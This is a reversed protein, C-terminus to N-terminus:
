TKSWVTLYSPHGLLRLRLREQKKWKVTRAALEAHRREEARYAEEREAWQRETFADFYVIAREHVLEYFPRLTVDEPRGVGVTRFALREGPIRRLWKRVAKAAFEPWYESVRRDYDLLGKSHLHALTMAGVGKTASFVVVSTDRVWPRTRKPDAWGGWLDVVLEGDVYAAFAGGLEGRRRLNREFETRVEEYGPAVFGQVSSGDKNPVTSCGTGFLATISALM